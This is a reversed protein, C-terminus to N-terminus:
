PVARDAPKLGKASKFDFRCELCTHDPAEAACVKGRCDPRLMNELSRAEGVISMDPHCLSALLRAIGEEAVQETLRSGAASHIYSVAKPLNRLQAPASQPALNGMSLDAHVKAQFVCVCVCKTERGTVSM